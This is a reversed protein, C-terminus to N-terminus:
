RYTIISSHGPVFDDAFELRGAEDLLTGALATMSQENMRLAALFDPDRYVSM